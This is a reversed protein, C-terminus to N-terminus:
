TPFPDFGLYIRVMDFGIIPIKESTEFCSKAIGVVGGAPGSLLAANGSFKDASRLGGDSCMFDLRKPPKEFNSLLNGVYNRVVPLLYVETCVATARERYKIQPSVESSIAIHVFGEEKAIEAVQKEHDSTTLTWKLVNEPVYSSLKGPFIHSHMFAIAVSNFGKKRLAQLAERTKEVNLRKLIRILDGSATRVVDPDTEEVKEAIPFPNLEYDEPTVREELEVVEDFLVRAKQINLSFLKPRTQDGLECIDQMGKYANTLTTM